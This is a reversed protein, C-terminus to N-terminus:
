TFDVKLQKGLALAIKSMTDISTNQGQEIRAITSQTVDARNALEKQTLGARVRANLLTVARELGASEADFGPKVESGKLPESFDDDFLMNKGM